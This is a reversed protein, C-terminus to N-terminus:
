AFCYTKLLDRKSSPPAAKKKKMRKGFEIVYLYSCKPCMNGKFPYENQHRTTTWAWKTSSASKHNWISWVLDYTYEKTCHADNLIYDSKDNFLCQCKQFHLSRCWNFSAFFHRRCMMLRWLIRVNQTQIKTHKILSHFLIVLKHIINHNYNPIHLFSIM